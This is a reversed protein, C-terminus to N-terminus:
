EDKKAKTNPWVFCTAVMLCFGIVIPAWIKLSEPFNEVIGTVLMPAGFSWLAMAWNRRKEPSSQNTKM